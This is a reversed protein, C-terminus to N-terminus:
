SMHIVDVIGGKNMGGKYAHSNLGGGRKGRGISFAICATFRQVRPGACQGDMRRKCAM